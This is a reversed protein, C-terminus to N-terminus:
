PASGTHRADLKRLAATYDSFDLGFHELNPLTEPKLPDFPQWSDRRITPDLYVDSCILCHINQDPALAISLCPWVWDFRGGMANRYLERGEMGDVALVTSRASVVGSKAALTERMWIVDRYWNATASLQWLSQAILMAAVLPVIRGRRAELWHPHFRLILAVPLLLLPVLVDVARHDHQAGNDFQDPALLPGAGWVAVAALLLYFGPKRSLIRWLKDSGATALILGIWAMTWSLTWGPHKWM